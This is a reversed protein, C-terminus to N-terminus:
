TFVRSANPLSTDAGRAFPPAARCRWIGINEDFESRRNYTEQSGRGHDPHRVVHRATGIALINPDENGQKRSTMSAANQM